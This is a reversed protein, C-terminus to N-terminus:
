QYDIIEASVYVVTSAIARARQVSLAQVRPDTRYSAFSEDSPFELLHIEDPRNLGDGRPVFASLLRGGHSRVIPLVRAEYSRLGEVGEEGATIMALVHIM